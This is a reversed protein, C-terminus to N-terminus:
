FTTDSAAVLTGENLVALGCHEMSDAVMCGALDVAAGGRAEVNNHKNGSVTCKDLRASAKDYVGV